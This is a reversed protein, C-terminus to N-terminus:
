ETDNGRASSAFARLADYDSILAQARDAVQKWYADAEEHAKKGYVQAEEVIEEAKKQADLLIIRHYEEQQENMRKINDLYEKAASDADQFIHNLSLAAEALSGSNEITIKRNRLEEEMKQLKEQLDKNEEMQGILMQLLEGRNLRQLEKDTM